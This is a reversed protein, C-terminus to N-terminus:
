RDMVGQVSCEPEPTQRRITMIGNIVGMMGCYKMRQVRQFEFVYADPQTRVVIVGDPSQIRTSGDQTMRWKLRNDTPQIDVSCTRPTWKSYYSFGQVQGGRAEFAIRAHLDDEGVKCDYRETAGKALAVNLPRDGAVDAMPDIPAPEPIEVQPEPKPTVPPARKTACASFLLTLFLIVCIRFM